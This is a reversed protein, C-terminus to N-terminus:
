LHRRNIAVVELSGIARLRAVGQHLEHAVEGVVGSAKFLEPDGAVRWVALVGLARLAFQAALEIPVLCGLQALGPGAGSAAKM